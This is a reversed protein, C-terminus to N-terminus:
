ERCKNKRLEVEDDNEVEGMIQKDINYLPMLFGDKGFVNGGGFNNITEFLFQETSYTCKIVYPSELYRNQQQNFSNMKNM